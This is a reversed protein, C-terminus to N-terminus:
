RLSRATWEPANLPDTVIDRCRSIECLSPFALKQFNTCGKGKNIIVLKFSAPSFNNSLYMGVGRNAAEWQGQSLFPSWDGFFDFNLYLFM